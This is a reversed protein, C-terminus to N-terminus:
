PVTREPKNGGIDCGPLTETQLGVDPQAFDFGTMRANAVKRSGTQGKWAVVALEVNAEVCEELHVIGCVEIQPQGL